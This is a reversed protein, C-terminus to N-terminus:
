MGPATKRSKQRLVVFIVSVSAVIGLIFGVVVGGAVGLAVTYSTLSSCEESVPCTSGSLEVVFLMTAM